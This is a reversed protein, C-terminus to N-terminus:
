DDTHVPDDQGGTGIFIALGTVDMGSGIFGPHFGGVIGIFTTDPHATSFTVQWRVATEPVESGFHTCPKMIQKSVMELIMFGKVPFPLLLQFICDINYEVFGAFFAVLIKKGFSQGVIPSLGMKIVFHISVFQFQVADITVQIGSM